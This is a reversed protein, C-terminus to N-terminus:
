YNENQSAKFKYVMLNYLLFFDLSQTLRITILGKFKPTKILLFKM